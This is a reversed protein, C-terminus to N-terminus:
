ASKGSAPLSEDAARGDLLRLLGILGSVHFWVGVVLLYLGIGWWILLGLGLVPLLVAGLVALVIVGIVVWALTIWFLRVEKDSHARVRPAAAGRSAYAIILGVLGLTGVSPWSILSLAYVALAETKGANPAASTQQVSV